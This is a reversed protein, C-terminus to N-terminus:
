DASATVPLPDLPWIPRTIRQYPLNLLNSTTFGPTDARIITGALHQFGGRFHQTSKLAVIRMRRVDIGHLRFVEEDFTQSRETAVLVDVNGIVLRAMKGADVISGAGMPTTLTFRGDTLAKVYATTEIPAGHLEDTFGGLKIEITAGVGAAHAQAAVAPDWIFGFCTDPQNAALLARLLHTGSGPAGGGPNDSVEAVVVPLATAALAEAIADEAGPLEQRFEEIMGLIFQAVDKAITRALEPDNDTTVLVSTAIVPVDTDPFGHTFNCDLVGPTKEWALCRENVIKAPGSFTTSPPIIAPLRELHMVPKVEGRVIRAALEVIEAGRADMDIHPYEHCYFLADAHELMADTTNGHLDLAVVVPIDPGVLARLEGLFTGELDDMGEASGAGHIALCIADVAGAATLRAFLEDRITEYADRSVTASPQTTTALTPALDIGLREAAEIMGGLENGVGRNVRIIEDGVEWQTKRFADIDTVGPCFTNTEHAFYGIAFRM